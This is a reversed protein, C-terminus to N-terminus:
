QKVELEKLKITTGCHPCVIEYNDINDWTNKGINYPPDILVLDISNDDLKKMEELCDGQIIKNEM